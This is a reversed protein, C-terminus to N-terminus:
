CKTPFNYYDIVSICGTIVFLLQISRFLIGVCHISNHNFLAVCAVKYESIDNRVSTLLEAHERMSSINNRTRRFEQRDLALFILSM